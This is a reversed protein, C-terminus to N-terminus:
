STCVIQKNRTEIWIVWLRNYSFNLTIICDIISFEWYLYINPTKLHKYAQCIEYFYINIEPSEKIIKEDDEVRAVIIDIWMM